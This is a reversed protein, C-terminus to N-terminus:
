SQETKNDAKRRALVEDPNAAIAHLTFEFFAEVIENPDIKHFTQIKEGATALVSLVGSSQAWLLVATKMPDLDSRLTGDEVGARVARAVLDM